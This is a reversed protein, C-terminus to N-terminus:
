LPVMIKAGDIQVSLDVAFGGQSKFGHLIAFRVLDAMLIMRAAPFGPELRHNM